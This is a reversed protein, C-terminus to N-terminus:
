IVEVLDSISSAPDDVLRRVELAVTPLTPIDRVDQVVSRIDAIISAKDENLISEM